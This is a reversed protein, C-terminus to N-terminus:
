RKTVKKATKKAKAGRPKIAVSVRGQRYSIGSDLKKSFLMVLECLEIFNLELLGVGLADKLEDIPVFSGDAGFYAGPLVPKLAEVAAAALTAAMSDVAMKAGHVIVEEIHNSIWRDAEDTVALYEASPTGDVEQGPCYTEWIRDRLRKPLTFWHRRCGWQAPPVQEGCDPWHCTHSRTQGARAVHRRKEDLTTM